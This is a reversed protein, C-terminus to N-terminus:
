LLGESTGMWPCILGTIVGLGTEFIWRLIIQGGIDQDEWDDPQSVRRYANRKEGM